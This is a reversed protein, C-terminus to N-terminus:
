PYRQGWNGSVSWSKSRDSINSGSMTFEGGTLFTGVFGWLPTVGSDSGSSGLGSASESSSRVMFIVSSHVTLGDFAPEKSRFSGVNGSLIVSSFLDRKSKSVLFSDRINGVVINDELDTTFECFRQGNWVASDSISITSVETLWRWREWSGGWDSFWSSWGGVGGLCSNKSVGSGIGGFSLSLPFNVNEGLRIWKGLFSVIFSEDLGGSTSGSKSSDISDGFGGITSHGSFGSDSSLGSNLPDLLWSGSSTGFLDGDGTGGINSSINVTSDGLGSRSKSNKVGSVSSVGGFWSWSGGLFNDGELRGRGSGFVGDLSKLGLSGSKSERENESSETFTFSVRPHTLSGREIWSSWSESSSHFFTSSGSGGGWNDDSTVRGEPTREESSDEHYSSNEEVSFSSSISSVNM